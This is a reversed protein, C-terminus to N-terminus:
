HTKDTAKLERNSILMQTMLYSILEPGRIIRTSSRARAAELPYAWPTLCSEPATPSDM